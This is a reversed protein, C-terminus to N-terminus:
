VPVRVTDKKMAKQPEPPAPVSVKRGPSPPAQLISPSQGVIGRSDAQSGSTVPRRTERQPTARRRSRDAMKPTKRIRSRDAVQPEAPKQPEEEVEKKSKEVLAQPKETVNLSEETYSQFLIRSQNTTEKLKTDQINNLYDYLRDGMLQSQLDSQDEKTIFANFQLNNLIKNRTLEKSKARRLIAELDKFVLTDNINLYSDGTEDYSVFNHHLIQELNYYVHDIIEQGASLPLFLKSYNVNEGTMVVRYGVHIDLGKKITDALFCNGPKPVSIQSKVEVNKLLRGAMDNRNQFQSILKEMERRLLSNFKGEIILNTIGFHSTQPEGSIYYGMFSQYIVAAFNSVILEQDAEFPIAITVREPNSLPTDLTLRVAAESHIFERLGEKITSIIEEQDDFKVFPDKGLMYRRGPNCSERQWISNSM